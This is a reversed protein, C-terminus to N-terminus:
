DRRYNSLGRIFRSFEPGECSWQSFLPELDSQLRRIASLSYVDYAGESNKAGSYLDVLSRDVAITERGEVRGTQRNTLTISVNETGNPSRSGCKTNAREVYALLVSSRYPFKQGEELPRPSPAPKSPESAMYVDFGWGDGLPWNYLAKNSQFWANRESKRAEAAALFQRREAAKQEAISIEAQTKMGRNNFALVNNWAAGEFMRTQSVSPSYPSGFMHHFSSFAREGSNARVEAAEGISGDRMIVRDKFYIAAGVSVADPCYQAALRKLLPEPLAAGLYQKTLETDNAVDFIVSLSLTQSRGCHEDDDYAGRDLLHVTFNSGTHILEGANHLIFRSQANATSLPFWMALCVAFVVILQIRLGM